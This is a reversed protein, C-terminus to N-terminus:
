PNAKMIRDLAETVLFSIDNRTKAIQIVDKLDCGANEITASLLRGGQPHLRIHFRTLIAKKNGGSNKKAHTTPKTSSSPPLGHVTASGPTIRYELLLSNSDTLFQISEL